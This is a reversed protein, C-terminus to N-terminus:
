PPPLRLRAIVSAFEVEDVYRGGEEGPTASFRDLARIERDWAFRERGRDQPSYWYRNSAGLNKREPGFMGSDWDDLWALAHTDQGVPGVLIANDTVEVDAVSNWRSEGREQSIVTIGNGNWAVTNGSVRAGSASSVLIGAGWGWAPFGWGNSWVVNGTIEAGQSIEFHIGANENGHVRNDAITADVCDIDCWLGPGRNACAENGLVRLNSARMAKMGGAEWGPDFGATNNERLLNGEVLTDGVDNLHLGLQGNGHLDNGVVAHGSGGKLSVAAGHSDTLRNGRVLARDVGEAEIGGFQPHTASHRMRFGEVAVDDAAVRVWTDRTAIEVVHISPDQALLV